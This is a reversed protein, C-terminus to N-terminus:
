TSCALRIFSRSFSFVRSLRRTASSDSSFCTRFSIAEPFKYAGFPAPLCDPPNPLPISERFAVGAPEDTLWETRLTVCRNNTRVFIPQCSCDNCQCGVIAAVAIPPDGPQELICAPANAGVPYLADPAALPQFYGLFVLGSATEPEIVPGADPEPRFVGIMDPGVVEDLGLGM